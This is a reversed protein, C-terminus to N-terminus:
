RKFLLRIKKKIINIFKQYISMEKYEIMEKNESTNNKNRKEFINSYDFQERLKEQYRDENNKYVQKLRRIENEDECWYKLNLLAIIALTGENFSQEKVPIDSKIHPIYKKSRNEKFFQLLKSPIKKVYKYDILGLFEYLESYVEKTYTTM